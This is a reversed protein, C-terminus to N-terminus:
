KVVYPGYYRVDSLKVPGFMRSDISRGRNDGLVFIEDSALTIAYNDRAADANRLDDNRGFSDVWGAGAIAAMGGAIKVTEGPLGIVRKLVIITEEGQRLAFLVLAGRELKGSSIRPVILWAGKPVAPEMSLNPATSVVFFAFLLGWIAVFVGVAILIIRSM